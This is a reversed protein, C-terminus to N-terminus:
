AKEEHLEFERLRTEAIAREEAPLHEMAAMLGRLHGANGATLTFSPAAQEETRKRKSEGAM